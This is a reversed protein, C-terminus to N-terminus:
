ARRYTKVHTWGNWVLGAMEIKGAGALRQVGKRVSNINIGTQAEIQGTTLPEDGIAALIRDQISPRAVSRKTEAHGGNKMKGLMAANCRAADAKMAELPTLQNM